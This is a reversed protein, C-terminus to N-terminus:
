KHFRIELPENFARTYNEIRYNSRHINLQLGKRKFQPRNMKCPSFELVLFLCMPGRITNLLVDASHSVLVVRSM